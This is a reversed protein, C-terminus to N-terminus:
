VRRKFTLLDASKAQDRPTPRPAPADKSAHAELLERVFAEPYQVDEAIKAFDLRSSGYVMEAIQRFARPRELPVQRSLPEHLRWGRASLLRFLTRYKRSTILELEHARVIAAQVSVGWKVKLNLFTELTTAQSIEQQM